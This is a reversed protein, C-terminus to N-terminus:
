EGSGGGGGGKDHTTHLALVDAVSGDCDALALILLPAKAGARLALAVSGDGAGGGEEGVFGNREAGAWARPLRWRGGEGEGAASPRRESTKDVLQLLQRRQCKNHLTNGM